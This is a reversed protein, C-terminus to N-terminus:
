PHIEVTQVRPREGIHLLEQEHLLPAPPGRLATSCLSYHHRSGASRMRRSEDNQHWGTGRPCGLSSWYGNSDTDNDYITQRPHPEHVTTIVSEM